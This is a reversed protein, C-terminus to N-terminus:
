RSVLAYLGKGKINKIVKLEEPNLEWFIHLAQSNVNGFVEVINQQTNEQKPYAHSIGSYHIDIYKIPFADVLTRSDIGQLASEPCFWVHLFDGTHLRKDPVVISSKYTKGEREFEGLVYSPPNGRTVDMVCFRKLLKELKLAM